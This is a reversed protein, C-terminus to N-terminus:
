VQSEMADQTEMWDRLGLLARCVVSERHGRKVLFVMPALSVEIELLEWRGKLDQPGLRGQTEEPAGRARM